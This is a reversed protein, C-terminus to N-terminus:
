RKKVITYTKGEVDYSIRLVEYTSRMNLGPGGFNVDISKDVVKGIVKQGTKELADYHALEKNFM